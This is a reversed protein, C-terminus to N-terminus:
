QIRKCLEWMLRRRYNMKEAMATIRELLHKVKREKELREERQKLDALEALLRYCKEKRQQSKSQRHKM